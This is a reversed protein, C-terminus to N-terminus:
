KRCMTMFTVTCQLPVGLRHFYTFLMLEKNLCLTSGKDKGLNSDPNEIGDCRVKNVVIGLGGNFKGQKLTELLM